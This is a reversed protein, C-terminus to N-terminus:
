LQPPETPPPSLFEKLGVISEELLVAPFDPPLLEVLGDLVPDSTSIPQGSCTAPGAHCHSAHAAHHDSGGPQGPAHEQVATQGHHDPWHDVALVSPLYALLM